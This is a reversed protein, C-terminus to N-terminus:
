RGFSIIQAQPRGVTSGGFIKKKEKTKKKFV